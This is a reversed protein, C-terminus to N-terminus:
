AVNGIYYKKLQNVAGKSHGEEEFDDIHDKGTGACDLLTFSGGPHDM